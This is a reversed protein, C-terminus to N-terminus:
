LSAFYSWFLIWALTVIGLSLSPPIRARSSVRDALRMPLELAAAGIAVLAVAQWGLYLGVTILGLALGTPKQSQLTRWAIGALLLGAALGALGDVTGAISWPLSEWVPMSRLGPWYLPALAGVVLAPAFLKWPPRNGDHEILGACLLTCLLLLHYPYVAYLEFMYWKPMEVFALLAFLAATFAEVLPYRISIKSQCHRCRGGLAIWGVMPVNDFWRIAEGCKPCHSPPHIISIGKPLRYVVVNLFSGVAGGVAFLWIIILVIALDSM